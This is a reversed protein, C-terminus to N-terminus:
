ITLVMWSPKLLQRDQARYGTNGQKVLQVCCFALKRTREAEGLDQKMEFAVKRLLGERSTQSQM